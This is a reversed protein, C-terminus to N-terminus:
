PAGCPTPRGHGEQGQPQVGRRGSFGGAHRRGQALAHVGQPGAINKKASEGKGFPDVEILLDDMEPIMGLMFNAMIKIDNRVERLVRVLLLGELVGFPHNCVAVLPGTAPVRSVPQGDVSFKVGLADMAQDMFPADSGKEQLASYLSNLTELRLLKSLPKRVM